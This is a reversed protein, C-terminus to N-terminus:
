LRGNFPAGRPRRGWESRYLREARAQVRRWFRAHDTLAVRLPQGTYWRIFRLLDRRTLGIDMASFYLGGIDKIIWRRPTRRRLQVRHLDILHLETDGGDTRGAGGQTKLLFHCLYFDRHNVGNRHLRRAIEAIRRILRRRYGADPPNTPWNRCSDELSIAPAIEDTVIFSQKDAPNSGQEGFAAIRMTPVGLEELRQIALREHGAGFQPLRLLAIQKIIERWGVGGHCKIYFARGGREFRLTHRNHYRRYVRGDIAFFDAVSKESTFLHRVDDRLDIM